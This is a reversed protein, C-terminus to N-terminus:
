CAIEVILPFSVMIADFTFQLIASDRFTYVNVNAAIKSHCIGEFNHTFQNAVFHLLHVYFLYLQLCSKFLNISRFEWTERLKKHLRNAACQDKAAQWIEEFEM